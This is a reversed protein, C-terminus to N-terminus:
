AVSLGFCPEGLDFFIICTYMYYMYYLRLEPLFVDFFGQQQLKRFFLQTEFLGAPFWIV